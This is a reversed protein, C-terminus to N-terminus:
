CAEDIWQLYKPIDQFLLEGNNLKECVKDAKPNDYMFKQGEKKEEETFPSVYDSSEIVNSTISIAVITFLMGWGILNLQVLQKRTLEKGTM